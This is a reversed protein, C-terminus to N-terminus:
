ASAPATRLAILAACFAIEWSARWQRNAPAPETRAGAPSARVLAGPKYMRPSERIARAHMPRDNTEREEEDRRQDRAADRLAIGPNGRASESVVEIARREALEPAVGATRPADFRALEAAAARAVM